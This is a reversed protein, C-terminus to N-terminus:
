GKISQSFTFNGLTDVGLLLLFYYTLVTYSM